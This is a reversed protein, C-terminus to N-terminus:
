DQSQTTQKKLVLLWDQLIPAPPIKWRQDNAVSVEVPYEEGTLPNVYFAEYVAKPDLDRVTVGRGWPMVGRPFYFLRIEGPIGAAYPGQVDADDAAPDIWEPHCEFRNWQFRQLIKRGLGVYFSGKWQHAEEWTSNGWTHGGPSPGFLEEETNFQWIADAGYCHGAAGSLMNTWFLIRQLKADSGGGHMGEFCGKDKREQTLKQFDEPWKFRSTMGHWWSDALWLFPTGDSHAIHKTSDITLPGHRLLRNSGDHSKVTITGTTGNL